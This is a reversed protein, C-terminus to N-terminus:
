FPINKLTDDLGTLDVVEISLNADTFDAKSLVKQNTIHRINFMDVASAYEINTTLTQYNGATSVEEAVEIDVKPTYSYKENKFFTEQDTGNDITFGQTGTTKFVDQIVKTTLEKPTM